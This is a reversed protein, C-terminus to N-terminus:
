TFGIMDGMLLAQYKEIAEGIRLLVGAALM